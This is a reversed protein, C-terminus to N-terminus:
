QNDPPREQQSPTQEETGQKAALHNAIIQLLGDKQADMVSLVATQEESNLSSNALIQQVSQKAKQNEEQLSKTFLAVLVKLEAEFDTKLDEIAKDAQNLLGSTKKTAAEEAEKRFMDRFKERDVVVHGPAPLTAIASAHQLQEVSTIATLETFRQQVVSLPMSALTNRATSGIKFVEFLEVTTQSSVPPSASQEKDM